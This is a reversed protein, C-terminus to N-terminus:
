SRQSASPPRPVPRLMREPHAQGAIQEGNELEIWLDPAARVVREVRGFPGLVMGPEIDIRTLMDGDRLIFVQGDIEEVARWGRLLLNEVEPRAGDEPGPAAGPGSDPPVSFVRALEPPRAAGEDWM